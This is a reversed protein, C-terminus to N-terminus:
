PGCIVAGSSRIGMIYQGAPCSGTPAAFPVAGCVVNNGQIATVVEGPNPCRVGAGGFANVNICLAPNARDCLQDTKVRDSKINGAVELKATPTVTGIGVNQVNLNQIDGPSAASRAWLNSVSWQQFGLLDDYHQPSAGLSRIDRTLEGLVFGDLDCNQGDLVTVDCPRVITGDPTWAGTGDIGHSLIVFHMYKEIADKRIMGQGDRKRIAVAGFADNFTAANTLSETVVYRLKRGWGDLMRKDSLSVTMDYRLKRAAAAQVPDAMNYSAQATAVVVPDFLDLYPVAGILVTEATGDGDIDPGVGRCVGGACAGVAPVTASVPCAERGYNPNGMPLTMDAPCPYRRNNIQFSTMAVSSLRINEDSNEIRQMNLYQSYAESFALLIIGSIVLVISLEVLSFGANGRRKDKKMKFFATVGAM